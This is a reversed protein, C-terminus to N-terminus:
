FCLSKQSGPLHYSDSRFAEGTKWARHQIVQGDKNKKAISEKHTLHIAELEDSHTSSPLIAPIPDSHHWDDYFAPDSTLPLRPSSVLDM